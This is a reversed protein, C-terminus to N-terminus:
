EKGVEVKCWDLERMMRLKERHAEYYEDLTKLFKELDICREKMCMKTDEVRITGDQLDFQLQMLAEPVSVHHGFHYRMLFDGYLEHIMSILKRRFHSMLYTYQGIKIIIDKCSPGETM